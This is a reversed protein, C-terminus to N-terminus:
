WLRRIKDPNSPDEMWHGDVIYRYEYEGPKMQVKLEWGNEIGNNPM